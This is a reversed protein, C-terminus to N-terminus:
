SYISWQTFISCKYCSGSQIILIELSVDMVIMETLAVIVAPLMPINTHTAYPQGTGDKVQFLPLVVIGLGGNILLLHNLSMCLPFSKDLGDQHDAAQSLIIGCLVVASCAVIYARGTGAEVQSHVTCVYIYM